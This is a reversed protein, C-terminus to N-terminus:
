DRRGKHSHLPLSTQAKQRERRHLAVDIAIKIGVLVFLVPLPSAIAAVGFGGFILAVHMVIMRPYPLFMVADPKIVAYEGKILYNVVFSIGHSAFLCILPIIMGPPMVAWMQGIVRFLIQPFVLFCPWNMNAMDMEHRFFALVFVGHIGIFGGYHVIFFPIAFLKGLHEVPNPVKVCAMKLVTYFGVALNEAWYLLLIAFADWGSFVIGWLPVLNAVILAPLALNSRCEDLASRGWQIWFLLSRDSNPM